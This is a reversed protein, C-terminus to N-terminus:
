LQDTIQKWHAVLIIGQPKAESYGFDILEIQHDSIYNVSAIREVVFSEEIDNNITKDKIYDAFFYPKYNM